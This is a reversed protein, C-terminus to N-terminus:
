ISEVQQLQKLICLHDHNNHYHPMCRNSRLVYIEGLVRICNLHHQFTGTQCLKKEDKWTLLETKKTAWGIGNQHLQRYYADLTNCLCPFEPDLMYDHIHHMTKVQRQLGCLLLQLPMWPYHRGDKKRVEVAFHGWWKALEQINKGQCLDNSVKEQHEANREVEQALYVNVAWDTSQLTTKPQCGAQLSEFDDNIFFCEPAKAFCFIPISALRKSTKDMKDSLFTNASKQLFTLRMRKTFQNSRSPLKLMCWKRAILLGTIVHGHLLLYQSAMVLM